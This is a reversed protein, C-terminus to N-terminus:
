VLALLARGLAAEAAAHNGAELAARAAVLAVGAASAFGRRAEAGRLLAAAQRRGGARLAQLAQRVAEALPPVALARDRGASVSAIWAGALRALALTHKPGRRM